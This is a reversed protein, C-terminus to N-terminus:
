CTVGHVLRLLRSAASFGGCGCASVSWDTGGTAVWGGAAGSSGGPSACCTVFESSGHAAVTCSSLSWGGDGLPVAGGGGGSGGGGGLFDSGRGSSSRSGSAFAARLASTKDGKSGHKESPLDAAAAAAAFSAAAAAASKSWFRM